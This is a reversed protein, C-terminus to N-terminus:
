RGFVSLRPVSAVDEDTWRMRAAGVCRVLEVGEGCVIMVKAAAATARTQAPDLEILQPLSGPDAREFVLRGAFKRPVIVATILDLFNATEDRGSQEDFHRLRFHLETLRPCEDFM